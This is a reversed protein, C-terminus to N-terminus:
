NNLKEIKIMKYIDKVSTLTSLDTYLEGDSGTPSGYGIPNMYYTKQNNNIEVSYILSPQASHSYAKSEPYKSNTWYQNWDWTQNVELLIRYKSDLNSSSKLEFDKNPTAGTYADIFPHEPTPILFKGNILGKKHTWYPLAAPQLSPGPNKKWISDGVLEHGFIGSAYSKTIYLTKIYEGSLSEIWLVFTPHNYNEGKYFTISFDNSNTKDSVSINLMEVQTEKATKCSFLLTLSVLIILYKIRVKM